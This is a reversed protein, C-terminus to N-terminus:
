WGWGGVEEDEAGADGAEGGGAVEALAVEVGEDEFGAVADSAADGGEVGGLGGTGDFEAGFEDVAEVGVEPGEEVFGAEGGDFGAALVEDGGGVAGAFGRAEVVHGREEFGEGAGGGVLGEVVKEAM